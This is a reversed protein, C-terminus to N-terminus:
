KQVNTAFFSLVTAIWGTGIAAAFLLGDIRDLIGGHGPLLSGSDKVGLVRKFRSEFLDGAITSAALLVGTIAGFAASAAVPMLNMWIFLGAEFAAAAVVSGIAGEVTKKPSIQPALPRKGWTRGVFWGVTDSAWVPVLVALVIPFPLKMGAAAAPLMALILIPVATWLPLAVASSGAPLDKASRAAGILIPQFAWGLLLISALGLGQLLQFTPHALILGIAGASLVLAIVVAVPKSSKLLAAAEIGGVVAAAAALVALPYPSPWFIALGAVALLIVATALRPIM